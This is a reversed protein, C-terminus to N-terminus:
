SKSFISKRRFFQELQARDIGAGSGDTRIPTKPVQPTAPLEGSAPRSNPLTAPESSSAKRGSESLPDTPQNIRQEQSRVLAPGEGPREPAQRQLVQWLQTRWWIRARSLSVRFTGISADFGEQVLIRRVAEHPHGTEILREIRALRQRVAGAYSQRLLGNFLGNAPESTESQM